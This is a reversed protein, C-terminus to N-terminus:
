LITQVATQCTNMLLITTPLSNHFRNTKGTDQRHLKFPKIQLKNYM